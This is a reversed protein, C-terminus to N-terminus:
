ERAYWSLLIFGIAATAGHMILSFGAAGAPRSTGGLAAAAVTIALMLAALAVRLAFARPPPGVFKMVFLGLIVVGGCGYALSLREGPSEGTLSQVTAGLWVVLAALVAYRVVPM